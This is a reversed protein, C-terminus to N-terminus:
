LRGIGPLAFYIFDYLLCARSMSCVPTAYFSTFKMGEAALKDLHPTRVQKNGFPGIDGYGLDDAFILVINPKEPATQAGLPTLLLAATLLALTLKM